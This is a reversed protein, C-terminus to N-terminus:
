VNMIKYHAIQFCVDGMLLICFRVCFIYISKRELRKMEFDGSDTFVSTNRSVACLFDNKIKKFSIEKIITKKKKRSIYQFFTYEDNDDQEFRVYYVPLRKIVAKM